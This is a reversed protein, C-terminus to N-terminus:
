PPRLKIGEYARYRDDGQRARVRRLTPVAALLDRGFTQETGAEKRGKTVCWAQWRSFLRAVRDRYGPGVFCCERVFAGIPSSLDELEGLLEKGAAPQVFHGRRRLREWGRIAWLLIGPLEGLLRDTLGIDERGYWSHALRLLIMRGVLAGSADGLRPLENTLIIFRASLKATVPALNKRDVTLADEGSISLLRETVTASDTRGSLRADSVVAATKGLLPWLGFNTGLSSLTPGAVNAKGLLATLVRAITGKGSRKPGLLMLIKQQRTDPTLQYGFWEQLTGVSQKDDPWLKGLFRLWAVPTPARPDFGFELANSSFFRPTPPLLHDDRGAALSALHLLGNRCPLTEEAPYPGDGGLWTPAEIRGPLMTMSALVHLVDAVLRGTVRQVTPPKAGNAAALRQAVLNIRDMEMKVAATLGARLEKEALIRYASGDWQQWEQRWFRLTLDEAHQCRQKIFLRALRHPDDAAELPTLVETPPERRAETLTGGPTPSLCGATARGNASVDPKTSM